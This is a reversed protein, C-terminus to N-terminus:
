VNGIRLLIIISILMPIILGLLTGVAGGYMSTFQWMLLLGSASEAWFLWWVGRIQNIATASFQFIIYEFMWLAAFLALSLIEMSNPSLLGRTWITLLSQGGIFITFFVFGAGVSAFLITNTRWQKLAFINQTSRATGSHFLIVPAVVSAGSIIMTSLRLAVGLFPIESDYNRLDLILLPASLKVSVNAIFGLSFSGTKILRSIVPLVLTLHFLGKGEFHVLVIATAFIVPIVFSAFYALVYISLDSRYYVALWTIFLSSASGIASLLNFQYTKNIAQLYQESLSFLILTANAAVAWIIPTSHIRSSQPIIYLLIVSCLICAITSFLSIYGGAILLQRHTSADKKSEILLNPFATQAGLLTLNFWGVFAVALFIAELGQQGVASTILWLSVLQNIFGALKSFIGSAVVAIVNLVIKRAQSM